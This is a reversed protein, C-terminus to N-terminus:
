RPALGPRVVADTEFGSAIGAEAMLQKAKALDTKYGDAQPWCGRRPTAAAGWMKIGRGYLAREFIKEYPMAYAVAQRVKM